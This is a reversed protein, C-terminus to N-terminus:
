GAAAAVDPTREWDIRQSRKLRSELATRLTKADIGLSECLTQYSFLGVRNKANMWHQAEYFLLRQKRSKANMHKLYCEVADELVAFMLKHEGQLASRRRMIENYQVPLLTDPAVQGGLYEQIRDAIEV